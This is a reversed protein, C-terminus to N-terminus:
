RSRIEKIKQFITLGTLIAFPIASLGMIGYSLEEPNRSFLFITGAILCATGVLFGGLGIRPSRIAGSALVFVYGSVTLWTPAMFLDQDMQSNDFFYYYLIIGVPALGNQGAFTILPHGVLSFM